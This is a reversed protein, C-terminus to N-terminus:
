TPEPFIEPLPGAARGLREPHRVEVRTSIGLNAPFWVVNRDGDCAPVIWGEFGAELAAQGIRQTLSVAGRRNAARWDDGAMRRASVNLRRRVEGNTLDLVHGLDVDAAVLVLPLRDAPDIGYYASNARSEALATAESM